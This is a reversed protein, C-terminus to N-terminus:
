GSSLYGLARQVQLMASNRCYGPPTEEHNPQSQKLWAECATPGSCNKCREIASTLDNLNLRGSLLETELNVGTADAM